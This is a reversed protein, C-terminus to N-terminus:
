FLEDFSSLLKVSNADPFLVEITNDDNLFVAALRFTSRVYLPIRSQVGRLYYDNNPFAMCYAYNQQGNNMHAILSMLAGGIFSRKEQRYSSPSNPEGKAEIHIIKNNKNAELDKGQQSGMSAQTISWGEKELREKLITKVKDEPWKSLMAMISQFKALRNDDKIM